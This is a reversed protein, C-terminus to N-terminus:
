SLENKKMLVTLKIEEQDGKPPMSQASSPERSRAKPNDLLETGRPHPNGKATEMDENWLEFETMIEVNSAKRLLSTSGDIFFGKEEM